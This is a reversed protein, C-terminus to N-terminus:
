RHPDSSLLGGTDAPYGATARARAKAEFYARTWALRDAHALGVVGAISDMGIRRGGAGWNGEPVEDIVTLVSQTPAAQEGGVVGVIAAHIWAHVEDKHASNMYGEPITVHALFRGPPDVYRDDCAGGVWWNERRVENFIVHAFARGGRTDAGGEMAILTETLKQALRAKDDAGLAGEVCTLNIIPM